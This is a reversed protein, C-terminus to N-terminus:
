IWEGVAGIVYGSHEHIQEFELQHSAVVNGTADFILSRASTTGQDLSGIFSNRLKPDNKQQM